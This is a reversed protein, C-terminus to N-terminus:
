LGLARAIEQGFKVASTPGDATIISGDKEVPQGTYNAGGSLLAKSQSPWVTAMKGKLVGANALITPAVCIAGLPKGGKVSEVALLHARKDDYYTEAGHGGVFIVADFDGARVKDLTTDPTVIMGLMGKSPRTTTSAVTVECGKKELIHRPERYEEDRFGEPAIVMLVKKKAAM